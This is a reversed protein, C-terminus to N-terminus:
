GNASKLLKLGDYLLMSALSVLLLGLFRMTYVYIKGKFFDKSRGLLIAIMIKSGVLFLYFSITFSLFACIGQNIAKTMIPGGVSLWFIYPSPNLINALMGKSLSREATTNVDINLSKSKFCEYAMYSLFICGSISIFGLIADSGSIKSMLFMAAIIIPLDTLIPAVAIKIGSKVGHRLTESIVLAFLPGPTFGSSLGILTGLTLFYVMM